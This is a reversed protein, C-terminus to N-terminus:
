MLLKSLFYSWIPNVFTFDNWRAGRQVFGINLGNLHSKGLNTDEGLPVHDQTIKQCYKYNAQILKNKVEATLAQVTVQIDLVDKAGLGPVSTSGIHDIRLVSSGLIEQLSSRIREFEEPWTPKYNHIVIM